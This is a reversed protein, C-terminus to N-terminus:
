AAYFYFLCSMTFIVHGSLSVALLWYKMNAPAETTERLINKMLLTYSWGAAAVFAVLRLLSSPFMGVFSAPIFLFWSYCYLSLMEVFSMQTHLRRLACHCALPVFFAICYLMSAATSIKKIGTIWEDQNRSSFYAAADGAINISIILTTIIWFPCYLDPGSKGFFSKAELRYVSKRLRSLATRTDVEFYPQYYAIQYWKAPPPPSRSEIHLGLLDDHSHDNGLLKSSADTEFGFDPRFAM